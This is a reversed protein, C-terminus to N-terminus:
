FIGLFKNNQTEGEPLTVPTLNGYEDRNYQKGGITVLETKSQPAGTSFLNGTASVPKVEGTSKNFTFAGSDTTFLQLDPNSAGAISKQYDELSATRELKWTGIQTKLNTVADDLSRLRSLLDQSEATIASDIAQAQEASANAKQSRLQDIKDGYYQAITQLGETRSQDIEALKQNAISEVNSKALQIKNLNTGLTEFLNGKQKLVQKSVAESAQGVASSSGAGRAGIAFGAAKLLNRATDSLNRAQAGAETRQQQEAQALEDLSRARGSEVGSKQTSISSELTGEQATQRTPMLGIQADLESMIPAFIDQIRSVREQERAASAAREAEQQATIDQETQSVLQDATNLAGGTSTGGGGTSSTQATTSEGLVQGSGQQSGIYTAGSPSRTAKPGIYTAGPKYFPNVSATEYIPAGVNPGSVASAATNVPSAYNVSKMYDPLSSSFFLNAM